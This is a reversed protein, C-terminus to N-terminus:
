KIGVVYSFCTAELWTVLPFKPLSAQAFSLHMRQCWIRHVNALKYNGAEIEGVMFGKLLEESKYKQYFELIANFLAMLILVIGVYLLAFEKPYVAYLSLSMLGCLVLMLSFLNMLYIIYAKFLSPQKPQALM